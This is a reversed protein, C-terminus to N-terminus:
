VLVSEFCHAMIRSWLKLRRLTGQQEQHSNTLNCQSWFGKQKSIIYDNCVSNVTWRVTAGSKRESAEERLATKVSKLSCELSSLLLAWRGTTLRYLSADMGDGVHEKYKACHYPTTPSGYSNILSLSLYSLETLWAGIIPLCVDSGQTDRLM